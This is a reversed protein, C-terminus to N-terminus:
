DIPTNPTIVSTQSTLLKESSPQDKHSTIRLGWFLARFYWEFPNKLFDESIAENLCRSAQRFKKLSKISQFRSCYPTQIRRFKFTNKFLIEWKLFTEFYDLFSRLTEIVLKHIFHYSILRGPFEM